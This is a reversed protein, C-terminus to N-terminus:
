HATKRRRRKQDRQPGERTERKKEAVANLPLSPGSEVSVDSGKAKPGRPKLERLERLEAPPKGDKEDTSHKDIKDGHELRLASGQLERLADSAHRIGNARMLRDIAEVAVVREGTLYHGVLQYSVGAKEALRERSGREETQRENFECEALYRWFVEQLWFDRVPELNERADGDESGDRWSPAQSDSWSPAHEKAHGMHIGDKCKAQRLTPRSLLEDVFEMLSSADADRRLHKAVNLSRSAVKTALDGNGDLLRKADPDANLAGNLQTTRRRDSSSRERRM